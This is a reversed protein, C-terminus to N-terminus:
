ATEYVTHKHVTRLNRQEAETATQKLKCHINELTDYNKCRRLSPCVTLVSGDVWQAIQSVAPESLKSTM